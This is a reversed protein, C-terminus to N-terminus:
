RRIIGCINVNVCCPKIGATSELANSVAEQVAKAVDVVSQGYAININCDVTMADEDGMAIKIGKGWNKKGIMDAIDAGPKVSLGAVGEVENVANAVITILVDESIMVSGNEQEKTIYQKNDAMLIGGSELGFRCVSGNKNITDCFHFIVVIKQSYLSFVGFALAEPTNM